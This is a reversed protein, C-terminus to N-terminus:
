FRPKADSTSQEGTHSGTDSGSAAMTLGVLKEVSQLTGGSFSLMWVTNGHSQDPDHYAWVEEVGPMDGPAIATPSGWAANIEDPTMGSRINGSLIQNNHEAGPNFKVYQYRENELQTSSDTYYHYTGGCGIMWFSCLLLFLTVHSCKM